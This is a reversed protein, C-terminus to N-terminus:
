EIEDMLGAVEEEVNEVINKIQEKLSDLEKITAKIEEVEQVTPAGHEILDNLHSYNIEAKEDVYGEDKLHLLKEIVNRLDEIIKVLTKTHKLPFKGTKIKDIAIKLNEFIQEKYFKTKKFLGLGERTIGCSYMYDDLDVIKYLFGYSTEKYLNHREMFDNTNVTNIMNLFDKLKDSADKHPVITIKKFLEKLAIVMKRKLMNMHNIGDKTVFVGMNNIVYVSKFKNENLINEVDEIEAKKLEPKLRENNNIEYMQEKLIDKTSVMKDKFKYYYDKMQSYLSDFTENFEKIANLIDPNNLNLKLTIEDLRVRIRKILNVFCKFYYSEEFTPARNELLHVVGEKDSSSSEDSYSSKDSSVYTFTPKAYKFHQKLQLVDGKFFPINQNARFKELKNEIDMLNEELSNLRKSFENDFKNVYYNESIKIKKIFDFYYSYFGIIYNLNECLNLLSKNIELKQKVNNNQKTYYNWKNILFNLNTIFRKVRNLLYTFYESPSIKVDGGEKKFLLNFDNPINEQLTPINEQLNNLNENIQEILNKINKINKVNEAIINNLEKEESIINNEKTEEGTINNLKTDEKKYDEHIEEEVINNLKSDGEKAKYIVKCEKDKFNLSNQKLYDIFNKMNNIYSNIVEVTLELENTKNRKCIGNEFLIVSIEKSKELLLNVDKILTKFTKENFSDTKKVCEGLNEYIRKLKEKIGLLKDILCYFNNETEDGTVPFNKNKRYEEMKNKFNTSKKYLSNLKESFEGEFYNVDFGEKDKPNTKGMENFFGMFFDTMFDLDKFVDLFTESIEIREKVFKNEEPLKIYFNWKNILIDLKITFYKVRALVHDYYKSLPMAVNENEDKKNKNSNQTENKEFLTQLLFNVNNNINTEPMNTKRFSVTFDNLFIKKPENMKISIKKILNKIEEKVNNMTKILNEDTQNSFSNLNIQSTIQTQNNINNINNNNNQM